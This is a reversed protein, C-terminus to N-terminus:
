GGPHGARLIQMFAAETEQSPDAGLEERLLTRCKWVRVALAPEGNLASVQSLGQLGRM